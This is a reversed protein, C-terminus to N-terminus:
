DTFSVLEQDQTGFPFLAQSDNSVLECLLNWGGPSPPPPHPQSAVGASLSLHPLHHAAASADAPRRAGKARRVPSARGTNGYTTVKNRQGTSGGTQISRSPSPWVETGEGDKTPDPIPQNILCGLAPTCLPGPRGVQGLSATMVAPCPTALPEAIM